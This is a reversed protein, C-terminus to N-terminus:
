LRPSHPGGPQLSLFLPFRTLPTSRIFTLEGAPDAGKAQVGRAGRYSPSAPKPRELTSRALIYVYVSSVVLPFSEGGMRGGALRVRGAPGGGAGGGAPEGGKPAGVEDETTTWSEVSSAGSNRKGKTSEDEIFFTPPPTSTSAPRDLAM